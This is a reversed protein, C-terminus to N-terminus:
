VNALCGLLQLIYECLALPYTPFPAFNPHLEYLFHLEEAKCGISQAFLLLDRKCWSVSKSPYEFGVGPGAM